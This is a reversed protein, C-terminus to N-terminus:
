SRSAILTPRKSSNLDSVESINFVRVLLLALLTDWRLGNYDDICSPVVTVVCFFQFLKVVRTCYRATRDLRVRAEPDCSRELTTAIRAAHLYFDRLQRWRYRYILKAQICSVSGATYRAFKGYIVPESALEWLIFIFVAMVLVMTITSSRLWAVQRHFRTRHENPTVDYAWWLLHASLPGASEPATAAM